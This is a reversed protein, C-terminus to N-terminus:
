NTDVCGIKMDDDAGSDCQIKVPTGSQFRLYKGRLLESNKNEDKGTGGSLSGKRSSLDIKYLFDPTGAEMTVFAGSVTGKASVSPPNESDDYVYVKAGPPFPTIAAAQDKSLEM